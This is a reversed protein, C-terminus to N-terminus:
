SARLVISLAGAAFVIQVAVAGGLLFLTAARERRLAWAGLVVNVLWIALAFAPLRLLEQPDGIVDVQAQPNWHLPLSIPLGNYIFGMYAFLLGCLFLGALMLIRATRDAWLPAAWASIGRLETHPSTVHSSAYEIQLDRRRNLQQIFEAPYAPSLGFTVGHTVLFIQGYAPRTAVSVVRGLQPSTGTGVLYGPM